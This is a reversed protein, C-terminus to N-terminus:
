KKAPDAHVLLVAEYPRDWQETSRAFVVCAEMKGSELVEAAVHEMDQRMTARMVDPFLFFIVRAKRHEPPQIQLSSLHQPNRFTKRVM